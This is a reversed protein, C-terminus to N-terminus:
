CKLLSDVVWIIVFAGGGGGLSASGKETALANRLNNRGAEKSNSDM